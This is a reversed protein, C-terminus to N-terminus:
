SAEPRDDSGLAQIEAAQEATPVHKLALWIEGCANTRSNIRVEGTKDSETPSKSQKKRTTM